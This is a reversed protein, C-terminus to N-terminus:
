PLPRAENGPDNKQAAELAKERAAHRASKLETREFFHGDPWVLRAVVAARKLEAINDVRQYAWLRWRPVSWSWWLWAAIFGGAMSAWGLTAAHPFLWTVLAAPGILLLLVPGNVFNLGRHIAQMVTIRHVPKAEINM